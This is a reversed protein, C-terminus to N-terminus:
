NFISFFSYLIRKKFFYFNIMTNPITKIAHRIQQIIPKPTLICINFCFCFLLSKIFLFCLLRFAYDYIFHIWRNSMNIININM